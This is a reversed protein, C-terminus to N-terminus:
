VAKLLVLSDGQPAELMEESPVYVWYRTGHEQVRRKEFGDISKMAKGIDMRIQHNIREPTVMLVREAIEDTRWVTPRNQTQQQAWWKIIRAAYEEHPLIQMREEAEDAAMDNEEGELWWREGAKYRVVAEAWLQDADKQLAERDVEGCRAPWYRRNGTEDELYKEDNTTGVYVCRRPYREPSIGFPVRYIDTTTTLFAKMSDKSAGRWHALEAMENIWNGRAAMKSDKDTVSIQVTATYDGGLIRLASTKGVGQKGELILCTDVQCGPEFVRAVASIAWKAGILAHWNDAPCGLYTHLWRDLRKVGDWQVRSLRDKVPNYSYFRAIMRVYPVIKQPGVKQCYVRELLNSVEVYYDDIHRTRIHKNPVIVVEERMEDYTLTGRTEPSFELIVSINHGSAKPTENGHKDINVELLDKWDEIDEHKQKRAIELLREALYEESKVRQESDARRREIARHYSSTFVKTWHELDEPPECEMRAMSSRCLEVVVEPPTSDPMSYALISAIDNVATSRNGTEALPKDNIVNDVLTALYDGRESNKAKQRRRAEKLHPLLENLDGSFSPASSEPCPTLGADLAGTSVAVGSLEESYEYDVDLRESPM